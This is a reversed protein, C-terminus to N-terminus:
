INVYDLWGYKDEDKGEVIRSYKEQLLKTIKGVEGNGIKIRDVSVVPTVEAATGVLFIEDAVYLAERPIFEVKVEIGLDKAIKIISDRTIGELISSSLPPTYLVGNIFYEM